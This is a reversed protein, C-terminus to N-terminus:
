RNNGTSKLNPKVRISNFYDNFEEESLMTTFPKGDVTLYKTCYYYPSKNCAEIEEQIQKENSM